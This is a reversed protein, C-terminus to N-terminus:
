LGLWALWQSIWLFSPATNLARSKLVDQRLTERLKWISRKKNRILVNVEGMEDLSRRMLNASGVFATTHDVLIIKAHFIHPYLLIRLNSSEGETILRGITSMNAHYHFDIYAPIIITVRVDRKSLAILRDIIDTDSIYCHEVVVSEKASDLLHEVASRIEKREDTNMVLTVSGDAQSHSGRTLFQEVYQAGRLEVMYDHWQYRYEEAINMGTLLLIEGDIVYVKAHDNNTSYTIRIRPHKWFAQWVADTSDKTSLFDGDFEFFDGVAEKTITVLVGREAADLLVSAMQRGTRDDKWIFMQIVISHKARRLLRELRMFSEGGDVWVRVENGRALMGIPQGTRLLIQIRLEYFVQMGTILRQGRKGFLYRLSGRMASAFGRSKILDVSFPIVPM